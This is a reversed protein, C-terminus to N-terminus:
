MCMLANFRHARRGGDLAMLRKLIMEMMGTWEERKAEVAEQDRLRKYHLLAAAGTEVSTPNAKLMRALFAAYSGDRAQRGDTSRLVFELYAWSAENEVWKEIWSITEEYEQDWTRVFNGARSPLSLIEMLFARQSWASNNMVDRELMSTVFSFERGVDEATALARLMAQRHGWAHYNKADVELCARTFELEDALVVAAEKGLDEACYMALKRRHNWLQYNKPSATAVRRMLSREMEVLKGQGAGAKADLVVFCRWRWEWASYEAANVAEIVNGAIEYAEETLSENAIADYLDTLAKAVATDLSIDM